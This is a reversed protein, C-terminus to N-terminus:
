WGSAADPPEGRGRGHGRLTVAGRFTGRGRGQGTQGVPPPIGDGEEEDDQDSAEDDSDDVEAEADDQDENDADNIPPDGAWAEDVMNPQAAFAEGPEFDEEAGATLRDMIEQQITSDDEGEDEEVWNNQGGCNCPM